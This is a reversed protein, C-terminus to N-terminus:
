APLDNRSSDRTHIYNTEFHFILTALTLSRLLTTKLTGFIKLKLRINVKDMHVEQTPFNSCVCKSVALDESHPELISYFRSSNIIDITGSLAIIIM